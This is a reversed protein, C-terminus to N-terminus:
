MLPSHNTELDPCKVGSPVIFVPRSTEPSPFSLVVVLFIRIVSPFAIGARWDLCDTVISSFHVTVDETQSHLFKSYSSYM